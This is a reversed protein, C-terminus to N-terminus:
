FAKRTVFVACAKLRGRRLRLTCPLPRLAASVFEKEPLVGFEVPAGMRSGLDQAFPTTMYGSSIYVARRNGRPQDWDMAPFALSLMNFPLSKVNNSTPLITPDILLLSTVGFWAKRFSEM